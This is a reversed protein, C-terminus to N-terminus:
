QSRAEKPENVSAGARVEKIALNVPKSERKKQEELPKTQITVTDLISLATQLQEQFNLMKDLLQENNTLQNGQESM